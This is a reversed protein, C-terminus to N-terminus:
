WGFLYDDRIGDEIEDHYLDHFYQLEAAEEEQQAEWENYLMDAEDYPPWPAQTRWPCNMYSHCNMTCSCCPTQKCMDCGCRLPHEEIPIELDKRWNYHWKGLNSRCDDCFGHRRTCTLCRECSLGLKDGDYIKDCLDCCKKEITDGFINAEDNTKLCYICRAWPPTVNKEIENEKFYRERKLIKQRQKKKKRWKDRKLGGTNKYKKNKYKKKRLRVMSSTSIGKFRKNKGGITIITTKQKKPLVPDDEFLESANLGKRTKELYTQPNPDNYYPTLNYTWLFNAPDHKWPWEILEGTNRNIAVRDKINTVAKFGSNPFALIPYKNAM